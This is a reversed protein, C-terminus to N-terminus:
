NNITDKHKNKKFNGKKHTNVHQQKLISQHPKERTQKGRIQSKCPKRLSFCFLLEKLYVIRLTKFTAWTQLCHSGVCTSTLVRHRCLSAPPWPPIRVVVELPPVAPLDAQTKTRLHKGTATCPVRSFFYTFFKTWLSFLM